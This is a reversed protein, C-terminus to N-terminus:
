LYNKEEGTKGAVKCKWIKASKDKNRGQRKKNIARLREDVVREGSEEM